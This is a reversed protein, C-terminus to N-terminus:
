PKGGENNKDRDRSVFPLAYQKPPRLYRSLQIVRVPESPPVPHPPPGLKLMRELRRVDIMDVELARACAQEVREDGYRRCLGLLAYVRRIRTWPLPGELLTHALRGISQGHKRAQGEIFAVDRMACAAQEPPFDAPDTYRGGPPQRPCVRVLKAGDYFRVTTRDARARLRKGRLHRPLSYIAKAVQAHQDRQVIPECSLPV